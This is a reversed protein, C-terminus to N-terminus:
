NKAKLISEVPRPRQGRRVAEWYTGDTELKAPISTAAGNEVMGWFDSRFRGFDHSASLFRGPSTDRSLSKDAIKGRRVSREKFYMGSVLEQPMGIVREVDVYYRRKHAHPANPILYDRAFANSRQTDVFRPPRQQRRSALM